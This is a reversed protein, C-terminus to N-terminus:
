EPISDIVKNLDRGLFDSSWGCTDCHFPMDSFFSGVAKFCNPCYASRAYGGSPIKRFAATHHFIFEDKVRNAAIEKEFEANKIKLEAIEKIASEHAKQLVDIQENIFVLRERLVENTKISSLTDIAKRVPSFFSKVDM